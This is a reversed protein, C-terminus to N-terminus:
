YEPLHRCLWPGLRDVLARPLKQWARQALAYQAYVDGARSSLMRLGVPEAGWQQKFRYTNGGFPSRGFDFVRRGAAVAAEITSWYILHNPCMELAGRESAAWPVWLVDGDAIAMLGAVPTGSAYAIVIECELGSALAALLPKPLLPAGHRHLTSALLAHFDDLLAREGGRRLVLPSRQAKRVQNRCKADLRRRWVQDADGAAGALDLRMTVPADAAFTATEPDLVRVYSARAGLRQVLAAAGALTLDTYNLFPLYSLTTGGLVGRMRICGDEVPLRLARAVADRWTAVFAPSHPRVDRAGPTPGRAAADAPAPSSQEPPM